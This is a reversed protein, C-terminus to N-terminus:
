PRPPQPPDPHRLLRAGLVGLVVVTVLLVTWLAIRRFDVPMGLASRNGVQPEAAAAAAGASVSWGTRADFGPVLVTVPLAGFAAERRGFAIEFPATGRTAFVIEAPQWGLLLIPPAASTVGSRADLVVRWHRYAAGSVKLPPNRIEDGGEGLRYFVGETLTRWPAQDDSRVDIRAPAVTNPAALRLNIQAVDFLGSADYEFAHGELYTGALERVPLVADAAAAGTEAEVAAMDPLPGSDAPSLRLYKARLAPLPVRDRTLTRGDVHLRLLPAGTVVTRWAALDDSAEVRVRANVDADGSLSVVLGSLPVDLEAADLVFAAARTGVVSRGDRTRVDLAVGGPGTRLSLSLEGLDRSAADVRLPYARLATRAVAPVVPAPPVFAYPVIEGAANFVRLDRLDAHAVHEYVAAPLALRQFAHADIRLPVHYAYADLTDEAAAARVAPAQSLAAALAVTAVLRTHGVRYRM